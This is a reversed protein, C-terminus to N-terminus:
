PAVELDAFIALFEGNLGVEVPALQFGFFSPIPFSGLSSSLIPLAGQILIPVAFQIDEPTVTGFWSSAVSALVDNEDVASITPLLEGGVFDFDLGVRFDVVLKLYSTTGLSPEDRLDVTLQGMRLETLEGLPGANGTLAPALSPQIRAVLPLDPPLARFEPLLLGLLGATLLLPTGTGVDFETLDTQLLGCEIQAKLLQNFASTAIAIGLDYPVGGPTNAGFGPFPEPVHYSADLDPTGAPPMCGPSGVQSLVRADSGLTIGTADEAVQFLPADLVVNLGEGIPGAIEIGDLATEIAGAVPTNGNPDVENLFDEFAPEMLGQIDGVLLDIFFEIVGGLFGDCTTTDSFGGFVVNAGGLQQVDVNEPSAALPELTYDGQIETTAAAIIVHCTFGIGSVAVVRARVFLDNLNIDGFAYGPQSDINIGFSGISPPPSGEILADVRGLCGIFTAYCYNDIVLTGPPLLTALDLDVLSAVVPELQDLGTDNLRLGLADFSFDGDAVSPGAIVVRRDIKFPSVLRTEIPNFVISPNLALVHSFTGDPQLTVPSGNITVVATALNVNKVLGTVTVSADTSFTGHIPSTVKLSPRNRGAEAPTAGLSLALAALVCSLLTLGAIRVRNQM